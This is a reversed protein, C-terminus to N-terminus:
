DIVLDHRVQLRNLISQAKKKAIPKHAAPKAAAAPAIPLLQLDHFTPALGVVQGTTPDVYLTAFGIGVSSEHLTLTGDANCIFTLPVEFNLDYQEKGEEDIFTSVFASYYPSTALMTPAVHMLHSITDFTATVYPINPLGEIYYFHGAAPDEMSLINVTDLYAVASSDNVCSLIFQGEYDELACDAVFAPEEPEEESELTAAYAEKSFFLTWGAYYAGDNNQYALTQVPYSVAVDPIYQGPVEDGGVFLHIPGIIYKGSEDQIGMYAAGTHAGGAPDITVVFNYAGEDIKYSSIPSGDLLGLSDPTASTPDTTYPNLIVLQKSGDSFSAIKYDVLWAAGTLAEDLFVGKGFEYKINTVSFQYFIDRYQSVVKQDFSLALTYEIAVDMTGFQIPIIAKSAGAAFTVTEPVIFANSDNALVQINLTLEATSDVRCVVVDHSTVTGPEIELGTEDTVPFYVAVGNDAPTPQWEQEPQCAVLGLILATAAFFIKNLKM